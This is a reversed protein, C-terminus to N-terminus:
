SKYELAKVMFSKFPRHTVMYQLTLKKSFVLNVNLLAYSNIVRVYVFRCEKLGSWFGGMVIDM